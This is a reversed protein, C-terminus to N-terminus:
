LAEGSDTLKVKVEVKIDANAIFDENDVTNALERRWKALAFKSIDICDIKWEEQMTKLLDLCQQRTERALAEEIERNYEVDIEGSEPHEHVAGRLMIKIKFAYFDGQREVEVKRSNAVFAAGQSGSRPDIFPLYGQSHIGRLFMLAKSQQPNIRAIMCDKKFIALGGLVVENSGGRLLLPMIPNKGPSQWVEVQHHTVTPMFSNGKTDNLMNLLYVGMNEYNPPSLKFLDEGRGEVVAWRVSHSVTPSRYLSDVVPKIGQRALEEGLILVKNFGTVYIESITLSRKDRSMTITSAPLTEITVNSSANPSLNPNLVTVDINPSELVGQSLRNLNQPDDKHVDYSAAIPFALRDVDKADWCGCINLLAALLLVWLLLRVRHM